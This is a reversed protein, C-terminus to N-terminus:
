ESPKGLEEAIGEHTKNAKKWVIIAIVPISVLSIGTTIVLAVFASIMMDPVLSDGESMYKAVLIFTVAFVILFWVRRIWVFRQFTPSRVIQILKKM